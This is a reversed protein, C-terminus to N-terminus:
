SVNVSSTVKNLTEPTGQKFLHSPLNITFTSGVGENNSAIIYGNYKDIINQVISLGLGSGKVMGKPQLRAFPSFISFLKDEPIGFGNDIVKIQHWDGTNSFEFKIVPKRDPPCYKVANKILNQFTSVMDSQSYNMHPLSPPLEIEFNYNSLNIQALELANTLPQFKRNSNLHCSKTYLLFDSILNNLFDISRFSSTVIEEIEIKSLSQSNICFLSNKINRIPETFDHAITFSFQELIQNKSDIKKNKSELDLNLDKLKSEVTLHYRYFSFLVISILILLFICFIAWNVTKNLQLNELETVELTGKLRELKGFLDVRSTILSTSKNHNAVYYLENLEMSLELATNTNGLKTHKIVLLELYKIKKIYHLKNVDTLVDSLLSNWKEKAYFVLPTELILAFLTNKLYAENLWSLNSNKIERKLEDFDVNIGKKNLIIDNRIKITKLEFHALKPFRHFYPENELKALEEDFRNTGINFLLHFRYIYWYYEMDQSSYSLNPEYDCLEETLINLIRTTDNIDEYIFGLYGLSKLIINTDNNAKAIRYAEQTYFADQDRLNFYYYCYSLNLYVKSEYSTGKMFSLYINVFNEFLGLDQKNVFFKKTMREGIHYVAVTDKSQVSEYYADINISLATDLNNKYFDVLLPDKPNDFCYLHEKIYEEITIASLSTSISILICISLIIRFESQFKFGKM